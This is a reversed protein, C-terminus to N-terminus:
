RLTLRLYCFALKELIQYKQYWTFASMLSLRNLGFDLWSDMGTSLYSRKFNAMNQADPRWSLMKVLKQANVELRWLKPVQLIQHIINIDYSLM